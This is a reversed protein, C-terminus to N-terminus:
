TDYITAGECKERDRLVPIVNLFRITKTDDITNIQTVLAEVADLISDQDGTTYGTTAYNAM